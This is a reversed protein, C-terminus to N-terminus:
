VRVDLGRGKEVHSRQRGYLGGANGKYGVMGLRVNLSFRLESVGM